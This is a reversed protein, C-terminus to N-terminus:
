SHTDTPLVFHWVKLFAQSNECVMLLVQSDELAMYGVVHLGVEENIFKQGFGCLCVLM